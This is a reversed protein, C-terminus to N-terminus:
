EDGRYKFLIADELGGFGTYVNSKVGFAVFGHKLLWQGAGRYVYDEPLWAEVEYGKCMALTALLLQKGVGFRRYAPRVGIKMIRITRDQSMDRGFVSYGLREGRYRAVLIRYNDVAHQWLDETWPFDWCKLDINLLAARDDFVAPGVM